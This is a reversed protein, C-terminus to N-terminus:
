CTKDANHQAIQIPFPFSVTALATQLELIYQIVLVFGRHLASLSKGRECLRSDAVSSTSTILTEPEWITPTVHTLSTEDYRGGLKTVSRFLWKSCIWRSWVDRENLRRCRLQGSYESKVVGCRGRGTGDVRTIEDELCCPRLPSSSLARLRGM